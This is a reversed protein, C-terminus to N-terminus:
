KFLGTVFAVIVDVGTVALWVAFAFAIASLLRVANRKAPSMDTWEKVSTEPLKDYYEPVEISSAGALVNISKKFFGFPVYINYDATEFGPVSTVANNDEKIQVSYPLKQDDLLASFRDKESVTVTTLLVPTEETIKDTLKKGCKCVAKDTLFIEKCKSCYKM